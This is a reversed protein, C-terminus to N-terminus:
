FTAYVLKLDEVTILNGCSYVGCGEFKNGLDTSGFVSYTKDYASISELLEHKEWEVSILFLEAMEKIQNDSFIGQEDLQRYTGSCPMINEILALKETEPLANFIEKYNM